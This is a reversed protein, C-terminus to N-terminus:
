AVDEMSQRTEAVVDALTTRALEAEMAEQPVGKMALQNRLFVFGRSADPILTKDSYPSKAITNGKVLPVAISWSLLAPYLASYVARGSYDTEGESPFPAVNDYISYLVTNQFSALAQPIKVLIEVGQVFTMDKPLTVSVCSNVGVGRGESASEGAELVVTKSARFVEAGANAALAAALMLIAQIHRKGKEM